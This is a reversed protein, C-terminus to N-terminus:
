QEARPRRIIAGKVAKRHFPITFLMQPHVAAEVLEGEPNKIETITFQEPKGMPEIIEVVDGKLFRNKEVVVLSGEKSEDVTAVVDWERVYGGNKYCQDPKNFYFGTSYERHSVKFVEDLLYDPLRYNEPDKLFLEVAQRYANTVIAVYYFSKARGEIKLSSIGAEILEPIHEILCMDKANLIHSGHEDEFVPIYVGPRKEEVLHYGWRCPQACEGRNADRGTLYNSIVCRGSYSMCMSGHVFAEIELDAPTKERITKVEQISLERALVVRKAGLNYLETATQHNVVGHQTSIHIEMNPVVRKAMMLVGIDAVILADVGVNQCYEMFEPIEDIEENRPMTNCTVYVKVNHAHAYDVAEKLQDYDFNASAARMGFAKGGLYVANAGYQVASVLREMDGAPALIEPKFM